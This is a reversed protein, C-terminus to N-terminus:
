NGNKNTQLRSAINNYAEQCAQYYKKFTIFKTFAKSIVKVM